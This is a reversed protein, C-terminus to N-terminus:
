IEADRHVGEFDFCFTSSQKHESIIRLFIRFQKIHPRLNKPLVFIEQLQPWRNKSLLEIFNTPARNNQSVM